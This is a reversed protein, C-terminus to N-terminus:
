KQLPHGRILFSLAVWHVTLIALTILRVIGIELTAGGRTALLGVLVCIWIPLALAVIGAFFGRWTLLPEVESYM